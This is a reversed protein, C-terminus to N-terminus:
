KKVVKKKPHKKTIKKNSKNKSSKKSTKKKTKKITTKPKLSNLKKLQLEHRLRLRTEHEKWEKLSYIKVRNKRKSIHEDILLEDEIPNHTMSIMSAVFMIASISGVLFSWNLSYNRLFTLAFLFGFLGFLMFGGSLPHIDQRM